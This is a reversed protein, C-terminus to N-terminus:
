LMAVRQISFLEFNKGREKFRSFRNHSYEGESSNILSKQQVLLIEVWVLSQTMDM